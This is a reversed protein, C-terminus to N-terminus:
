GGVGRQRIPHQWDRVADPLNDVEHVLVQLTHRLVLNTHLGARMGEIEKLDAISPGIHSQCPLHLGRM